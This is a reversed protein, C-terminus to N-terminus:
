QETSYIIASKVPTINATGPIVTFKGDELCVAFVDGRTVIEYITTSRLLTKVPVMSMYPKGNLTFLRGAIM